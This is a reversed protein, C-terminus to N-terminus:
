TAEPRSHDSPPLKVLHEVRRLNRCRRCATTMGPVLAPEGGAVSAAPEWHCCRFLYAYEDM